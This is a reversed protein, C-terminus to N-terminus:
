KSTSSIVLRLYRQPFNREVSATVMGSLDPDTVTVGTATWTKLDTSSEVTYTIGESTSHFAMSFSSGDVVPQPLNGQLNMDPSLNLAYAMLLSVGDGNLDQHLDTDHSLGHGLLWPAAPNTTEDIRVTPHGMWIPSTFGSRGSLYYITIEQGYDFADRFWVPADGLFVVKALAECSEFVPYHTSGHVETVGTPITISTLKRCNLFASEGLSSDIFFEIGQITTM